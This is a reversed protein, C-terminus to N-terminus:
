WGLIDKAWFTTAGHRHCLQPLQCATHKDYCCDKCPKEQSQIPRQSTVPLSSSRDIYLLPQTIYALHFKTCFHRVANKKQKNLLKKDCECCMWRLKKSSHKVLNRFMLFLSFFMFDFVHPLLSKYSHTVFPIYPTYFHQLVIHSMICMEYLNRASPVCLKSPAVPCGPSLMLGECPCM